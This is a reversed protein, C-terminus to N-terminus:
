FRRELLILGAEHHNVRNLGVNPFDIDIPGVFCAREHVRELLNCLFEAARDDTNPVWRLRPLAAPFGDMAAEPAHIKDPRRARPQEKLLVGRIEIFGQHALALAIDAPQADRLDEGLLVPFKQPATYGADTRFHETSAPSARVRM